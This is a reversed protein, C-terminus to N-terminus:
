STTIRVSVTKAKDDSSFVTIPITFRENTAVERPATALIMLDKKVPITKEGYGYKKDNSAVIMARVSGVYNPLLIEHKNTQGKELTFPGLVKVVADFRNVKTLNKVDALSEDGGLSIVKTSNALYSDSVLDFLDWTKVRLAEHAFFSTHPDPTKFNTLDLLGDEVLALTYTFPVGTKEKVSIVAKSSPEFKEASEIIPYLRSLADDIGLKQVGYQRIPLSEERREFAQIVHAHIFVNPIMNRDAEFEFFTQEGNGPIWEQRLVKDAKEISILVNSGKPAPIFVNVKSGITYNEKETSLQIINAGGDKTDRGRGAYGPWDVYVIKSSEHGGDEHKVKVLYRGWDPYNIQFDGTAMGNEDTMVTKEAQVPEVSERSFYDSVKEQSQEFWWRWKLKYVKYSVRQGKLPKGDPKLVVFQLPHKKDTLLMNRKDGSPISVGVYAKYPHYWTSFSMVSFDGSKEFVKTDFHLKLRGPAQKIPTFPVNINAEGESNLEVDVTKLESDQLERTLDTFSYDAFNPSVFPVNTFSGSIEAELGTAKAGHLWQSSITGSLTKTQYNAEEPDTKLQIKLRNPKVTEIPVTKTFSQGGVRATVTYHGTPAQISTKTKFLYMGNVSKTIATREVLQQRSDSLEFLVPHNEPFDKKEAELIFGIYLSDGPRRVGRETYLFGKVGNQVTKGSIPFSSSSLNSNNLTLYGAQEKYSVKILWAKENTQILVSGNAQTKTTLIKELPFNLVDIQADAIPQATNLDTVNVVFANEGTSKAIIGIDSALVNKYRRKDKTYYSINCPNNRERWDYGDPYYSDDYSDWYSVESKASNMSSSLDSSEDDLNEESNVCSSLVYKMTFSLELRYVAGPETKIIDKIDVVYSNWMASSVDGLIALDVRKGKIFKSVRHLQEGSTMTSNVQLFQPINKEFIKYIRIDVARLGIAKFPVLLKGSRPLIVGDGLFEVKPLEEAFQFVKSFPARLEYKKESKIEKEVRLSLNTGGEISFRPYVYLFNAVTEFRLNDSDNLKIKGIFQQDKALNESFIVKIRTVGQNEFEAKTILFENKSPISVTESGEGKFGIASGHWKIQLQKDDDERTIEEISFVMKGFGKSEYKVQLKVGSISAEILSSVSVEDLEDSSSIVGTVKYKESNEQLQLAGVSVQMSLDVIKVSFNLKKAESSSEKFLKDLNFSFNYDTGNKFETEPTFVFSRQDIWSIRGKVSPEVSFFSYDTLQNEIPIDALLRVKIPTKKSLIGQTYSDVLNSIKKDNTTSDAKKSDTSCSSLIGCALILLLVSVLSRSKQSKKNSYGM